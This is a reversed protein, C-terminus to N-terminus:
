ATAATGPARVLHDPLRRDERLLALMQDAPVPKSFYYGQIEDCDNRRMFDCQAETEVGEAVVRLGLGHSMSIVLKAIVADQDASQIDRVFSQDIKVKDFPFRKLYSLSSYGTGFDDLSLSVGIEKFKRMMQESHAVDDMIAGETLELCIQNADIAFEQLTSRVMDLLGPDRFQLPSLNVSVPVFPLGKARWQEMDICTQRLVWAGIAIIQGTQEAVPIFVAPSLVGLAPHTWRLLAEMGVIRGTQLDVFPQYHLRLEDHQIASRLATGVALRQKSDASMEASYFRYQNGGKEKALYLAIQAAKFLSEFHDGDNPHIAVGISVSISVEQNGVGFPESLVARLREIVLSAGQPTEGPLLLAFEDAGLRAVTDQARVAHVLRRAFKKIVKSGAAFGLTENIFKFRDIDVVIMAMQGSERQVLNLDHACRDALLARNPLQTLPDFHSLWDIKEQAARQETIDSFTGIYHSVQGAENYLVNIHLRELYDRGSKHRNWVEGQCSGLRILDAWMKRYFRAEHRHASLIRPNRGLVEAQTYGTISTFASNVMIIQHQADTIVLGERSQAFIQQALNLREQQARHVTIDRLIGVFHSLDGQEDHVPDITLQNWFTSGDKRYNLIDGQFGENADLARRIDVITQASSGPGQLATCPLGVLDEKAFGTMTTFAQNASLIRRDAGCILVGQSVASLAKRALRAQEIALRQETLDILFSITGSLNGQADRVPYVHHKVHRRCNDPREILSEFGKSPEGTRLCKAIPGAEPRLIQGDTSFKRQAGTWKDHGLQPERGWLAAAAPNFSVIHGGADCEYVGIPLDTIAQRTLDASLTPPNQSQQALHRQQRRDLEQGVSRALRDPMENKHICDLAGERIADIAASAGGDGYVIVVPLQADQAQVFHLVDIGGWSPMRNGAVVVDWTARELEQRLMTEDSVRTHRVSFGGRRLAMLMSAAESDNHAVLLAALGRGAQPAPHNKAHEIGVSSAPALTTM